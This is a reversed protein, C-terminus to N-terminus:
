VAIEMLNRILNATIQMNHDLFIAQVNAIPDIQGYSAQLYFGYKGDSTAGLYLIYISNIKLMQFGQLAEATVLENKNVNPIYCVGKGNTLARTLIKRTYENLPVNDYLSKLRKKGKAPAEYLVDLYQETNPRLIGGSNHIQLIHVYDSQIAFSLDYILDTVKAAALQANVVSQRNQEIRKQRALSDELLLKEKMFAFNKQQLESDRHAKFYVASLSFVGTLIATFIASKYNAEVRERVRHFTKKM